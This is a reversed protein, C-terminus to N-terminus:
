LYYSILLFINKGTTLLGKIYVALKEFACKPPSTMKTPLSKTHRPTNVQLSNNVTTILQQGGGSKVYYVKPKAFAKIVQM